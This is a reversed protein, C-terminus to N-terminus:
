ASPRPSKRHRAAEVRELVREPVQGVVRPTSVARLPHKSPKSPPCRKPRKPGMGGTKRARLTWKACDGILNVNLWCVVLAVRERLSAVTFSGSAEV